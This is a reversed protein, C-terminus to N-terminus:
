VGIAAFKRNESAISASVGPSKKEGIAAIHCNQFSIHYFRGVQHTPKVPSECCYVYFIAPVFKIASIQCGLASRPSRRFDSCRACRAIKAWRPSRRIFDGLTDSAKPTQQLDSDTFNLSIIRENIHLRINQAIIWTKWIESAHTRNLISIHNIICFCSPFLM